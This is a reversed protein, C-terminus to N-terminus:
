FSDDGLRVAQPRTRARKQIVVMSDYITIKPVWLEAHIPLRRRQGHYWSHMDDILDKTLSLFSSRRRYGGGYDRWYSTHTDEVLYLGGDTLLPFLTEFSARQDKAIHSGDDIVIDIGGMEDVVSKLFGRDSQSGIRVVLDADDVSLSRPNFDIGWVQADSGFYQRWLQLSGGHFVGIEMLKLPRFGGDTMPFGARFPQFQENYAPLYHNWKDVTRGTHRYFLAAFETTSGGAAMADEPTAQFFSTHYGRAKRARALCRACVSWALNRM